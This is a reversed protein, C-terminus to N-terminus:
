RRYRITLDLHAAAAFGCVCTVSPCVESASMTPRVPASEMAGSGDVYKRSAPLAGGHKKTWSALAVGEGGTEGADATESAADPPSKQEIGTGSGNDEDAGTAADIAEGVSENCRSRLEDWTDRSFGLLYARLLDLDCLDNYDTPKFENRDWSSKNWGLHEAVRRQTSGLEDWTLRRCTSCSSLLGGLDNNLLELEKEWELRTQIELAFDTSNFMHFEQFWQTMIEMLQGPQLREEKKRPIYAQCFCFCRCLERLPLHSICM